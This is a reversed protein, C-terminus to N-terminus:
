GSMNNIIQYINQADSSLLYYSSTTQFNFLSNNNITNLYGSLSLLNIYIIDVKSNTAYNTMNNITQYVLM